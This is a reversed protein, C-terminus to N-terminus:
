VKRKMASKAEEATTFPGCITSKPFCLSGRWRENRDKWVLALRVGRSNELVFGISVEKWAMPSYPKFNGM